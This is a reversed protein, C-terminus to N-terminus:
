FVAIIEHWSSFLPVVVHKGAQGRGCLGSATRVPPGAQPPATALVGPLLRGAQLPPRPASGAVAVGLHQCKGQTTMVACWGRPGSSLSLVPPAAM